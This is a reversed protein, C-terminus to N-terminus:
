MLKILVRYSFPRLFTVEGPNWAFEKGFWLSICLFGIKITTSTTPVLQRKIILSHFYNLALSVPFDRQKTIKSNGIGGVKWSSHYMGHSADRAWSRLVYRKCTWVILKKITRKINYQFRYQKRSIKQNFWNNFTRIDNTFFFRKLPLILTLTTKKLILCFIWM